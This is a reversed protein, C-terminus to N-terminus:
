ASRTFHMTWNTEWNKGGDASFAQEWRPMDPTPLTWLFRVRIPKGEFMDDAYFLGAGNEFGGLMPTDLKHPTRGDLWWISWIGTDPNFSRLTAACYRGGPHELVNDDVNGFGGLLKSTVATGDFEDWQNCNALRERLRRHAVRWNGIFFDFDSAGRYTSPIKM